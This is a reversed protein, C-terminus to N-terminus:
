ENNPLLSEDSYLALEKLHDPPNRLSKDDGVLCPFAEVVGRVLNLELRIMQWLDELSDGEILAAGGYRGFPTCCENVVSMRKLRGHVANAEGPETKLLVISKM